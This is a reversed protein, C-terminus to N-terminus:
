NQAPIGDPNSRELANQITVSVNDDAFLTMTSFSLVLYIVMVMSLIKRVSKRKFNMCRGRNM